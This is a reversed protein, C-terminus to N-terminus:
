PKPTEVTKPVDISTTAGDVEVIRAGTHTQEFDRNAVSLIIERSFVFLLKIKFETGFSEPFWVAGPANASPQPAYTATFGLGPLNTGLLGRVAFPLQRSLATQIVVPQFENVDIWADGKWGIDDKDKPEFHIHFTDRGNKLEHGLLHFIMDKQEKSTLPFLNASVGDRSKKDSTLGDRMNEVLNRDTETDDDAKKLAERAHLLSADDKDDYNTPRIDAPGKLSDYAIYKGKYFVRGDLKLLQKDSGTATPTIRYDTTEECRITKGKRSITRAHQTYVFHTRMAAAADQNTAVRQMIEDATLPQQAAASLAAFLSLSAFARLLM